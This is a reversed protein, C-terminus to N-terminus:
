SLEKDEEQIALVNIVLRVLFSATFSVLIVYASPDLKFRTKFAVTYIELPLAVLCVLAQLAVTTYKFADGEYFEAM